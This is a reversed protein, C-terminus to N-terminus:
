NVSRAHQAVTPTLMRYEHRKSNIKVSPLKESKATSSIYKIVQIALPAGPGGKRPFVSQKSPLGLWLMWNVVHDSPVVCGKVEFSGLM